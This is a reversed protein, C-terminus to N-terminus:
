VKKRKLKTVIWFTTAAALVIAAVFIVQLVTNDITIPNSGNFTFTTSSPQSKLSGDGNCMKAFDEPTLAGTRCAEQATIGENM